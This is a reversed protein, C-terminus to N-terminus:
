VAKALKSKYKKKKKQKSIKIIDSTTADTKIKWKGDIKHLIYYHKSIDKYRHIYKKTNSDWWCLLWYEKTAVQAYNQELKKITMDLVEFTSPNFTNSIITNEQQKRAVLELIKKYAAEGEIFYDGLNLEKLDPLKQYCLFTENLARHLVTIIEKEPNNKPHQHTTTKRNIFDDWDKAGVFIVLKNLTNLMRPDIPYSLAYEGQIIKQLTRPSITTGIAVCEETSMINGLEEAIVKSLLFFCSKTWKEANLQSHAKVKKSAKLEKVLLTLYQHLM